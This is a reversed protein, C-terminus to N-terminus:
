CTSGIMLTSTTRSCVASRAPFSATLRNILLTELLTGEFIVYKKGEARNFTGPKAVDSSPAPTNPPEPRQVPAAPQPSESQPPTNGLAVLPRPDSDTVGAVNAARSKQQAPSQDPDIEGSSQLGQRHSLAVNSAFLSKYARTQRETEIPDSAPPPPQAPAYAETGPMGQEERPFPGAPPNQQALIAARQEELQLERIRKQLDAIKAESIEASPTPASVQPASSKAPTKPSKGATLWMILVMLLAVGIIVWSQVRKPLIGPPKPAKDQIPENM